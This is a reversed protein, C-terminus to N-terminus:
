WFLSRQPLCLEWGWGMGPLTDATDPGPGYQLGSSHDETWSAPPGLVPLTRSPLGPFPGHRRSRVRLQQGGENHQPGLCEPPHSAPVVKLPWMRSRSPGRMLAQPKPLQIQNGMGWCRPLLGREMFEAEAGGVKYYGALTAKM